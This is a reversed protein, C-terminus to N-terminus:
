SDFRNKGHFTFRYVNDEVEVYVKYYPSYPVSFKVTYYLYHHPEISIVSSKQDKIEQIQSELEAMKSFNNERAVDLAFQGADHAAAIVPMADAIDHNDMSAIDAAIFAAGLFISFIVNGVMKQSQEDIDANISNILQERNAAYYVKRENLTSDNLYRFLYTKEPNFSATHGSRNDVVVELTYMSDKYSISNASVVISDEEQWAIKNEQEIIVNPTDYPEYRSVQTSYCSTLILLLVFPYLKKM